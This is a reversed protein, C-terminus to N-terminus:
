YTNQRTRKFKYLLAKVGDDIYPNDIAWGTSNFQWQYTLSSGWLKVTYDNSTFSQVQKDSGSIWNELNYDSRLLNWIIKSSALKFSNPVWKDEKTYSVKYHVKSQWSLWRDLRDLDMILPLYFYWANNFININALSLAIYESGWTNVSLDTVWSIFTSNTNILLQNDHPISVTWQENVVPTYELTYWIYDDIIDAALEIYIDLEEGTYRSLDFWSKYSSLEDQTIYWM